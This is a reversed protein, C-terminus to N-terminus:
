CEMGDPQIAKVLDMKVTVFENELQTVLNPIEGYSHSRSLKELRLCLGKMTTAGLYGCSTKLTHALQAVSACDRTASATKLAQLRQPTTNLFIKLLVEVMPTEGIATDYEKLKDIVTQDISM